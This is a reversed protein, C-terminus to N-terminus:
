QSLKQVLDALIVQPSLGYIESADNDTIGPLIQGYGAWKIEYKWIDIFAVIAIAFSKYIV